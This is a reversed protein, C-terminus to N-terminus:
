ACFQSITLRGRFREEIWWGNNEQYKCSSVFKSYWYGLTYITNRFITFCVEKNSFIQSFDIHAVYLKPFKMIGNNCTIKVMMYKTTAYSMTTCKGCYDVKVIVSLLAQLMFSKCESNFRWKYWFKANLLYVTKYCNNNIQTDNAESSFLFIDIPFRNKWNRMRM